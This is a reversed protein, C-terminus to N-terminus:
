KEQTASSSLDAVLAAVDLRLDLYLTAFRNFLPAYRSGDPALQPNIAAAGLRIELPRWPRASVGVDAVLAYRTDTPELTTTSVREDEVADYLWSVVIAFDASASLWDTIDLAVDLGNSLRFSVNRGGSNLFRDCSGASGAFCTGILPADLEGTTYSHLLKTFRLGYGITLGDLVKGFTRSLRLAPAISMILTDGQSALSTPLALGLSAGVDIGGPLVALRSASVRLALDGLLTEGRQTTDDANTLERSLELSAGLSVTKSLWYRPALELAMVWTPNYTLEAGRDFSIASASNRYAIESGRFPSPKAAPKKVAGTATTTPAPTPEAGRARPATGVVVILGLALGFLRALTSRSRSM